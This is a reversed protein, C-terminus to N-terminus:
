PFIIILRLARNKFASLTGTAHFQGTVEELASTLFAHIQLEM